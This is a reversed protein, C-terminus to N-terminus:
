KRLRSSIHLRDADLCGLLVLQLADLGRQPAQIDNDPRQRFRHPGVGGGTYVGKRSGGRSLAQIERPAALNLLPLSPSSGLVSLWHSM